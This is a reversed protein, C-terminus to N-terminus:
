SKAIGGVDIANNGAQDTVCKIRDCPFISDPLTVATSAAATFSVANGDQDYLAYYTNDTPDMSYVVVTASTWGSPFHLVLASHDEFKFEYTTSLSNTLNVAAFRDVQRDLKSSM